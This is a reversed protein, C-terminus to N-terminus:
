SEKYVQHISYKAEM